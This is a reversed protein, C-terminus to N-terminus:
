PRAGMRDLAALAAKAMDRVEGHLADMEAERKADEEELREIRGLLHKVILGVGGTYAAWFAAGVALVTADDITVAALLHTM